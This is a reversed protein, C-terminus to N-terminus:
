IKFKKVSQNLENTKEALEDIDRTMQELMSTQNQISAAVEQTASASESSINNINEMIINMKNKFEGVNIMESYVKEVSKVSNMINLEIKDYQKIIEENIEKRRQNLEINQSKINEFNRAEDKIKNVVDNIRGAAESSQEALKRVEDAVVAFGRGADGARAAEISANLALMNTQAAISSIVETMNNINAASYNFADIIEYIKQSQVIDKAEILKLGKLSEMGDRIIQTTINSDKKIANISCTISDIQVAFNEQIEKGNNINYNLNETENALSQSVDSITQSANHIITSKDKVDNSMSKVIEYTNFINEIIKKLDDVMKNFENALQGIEDENEIQVRHTLDGDSVLQTHHKLKIIPKVLRVVFIKILIYAITISLLLSIIFGVILNYLPKRLENSPIAFGFYWGNSKIPSYAFYKEVGDYDKIISIGEKKNLVNSGMDKYSGNLVKLVNQVEKENPQLEKKPHVIFDGNNDILFAYSNQGIKADQVIKTLYDVYIDAGVVGIIKNEKRIPTAITIVMKKTTVDLYPPTYILGNSSLSQKYWDRQTCDYSADPIWGDGSIFRKDNFGAYYCLIYPNPKQKAQFYSFLNDINYNNYHELDNAMEQIMKGQSVLWGNLQETYKESATIANEKFQQSLARYSIYYSISTSTVLTFLCLLCVTLTLKSKLSKM